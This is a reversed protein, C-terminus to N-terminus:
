SPYPSCVPWPWYSVLRKNRITLFRVEAGTNIELFPYLNREFDVLFGVGWIWNYHKLSFCHAPFFFNSRIQMYLKPCFLISSFAAHYYVYLSLKRFKRGTKLFTALICFRCSVGPWGVLNHRSLALLYPLNQKYGSSKKKLCFDGWTSQSFKRTLLVALWAYKSPCSEEWNKLTEQLKAEGSPWRIAKPPLLTKQGQTQRGKSRRSDRMNLLFRPQAHWAGRLFPTLGCFKWCFCGGMNFVVQWSLLISKSWIPHWIGPFTWM